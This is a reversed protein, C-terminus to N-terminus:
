RNGYVPAMDRAYKGPRAIANEGAPSRVNIKQRDCRPVLLRPVATTVNKM